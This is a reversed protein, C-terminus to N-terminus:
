WTARAATASPAALSTSWRQRRAASPSREAWSGKQDPSGSPAARRAATLRAAWGAASGRPLSLAPEAVVLRVLPEELWRLIAAVEPMGAAVVPVSCEPRAVSEATRRLDEVGQRPDAGRQLVGAAALRGFRVVHVEWGRQDTPRAAVLEETRALMAHRQSAVVSAALAALRDRVAAAREYQRDAALEAARELLRDAARDFGQHWAQAADAAIRGYAAADIAGACPGPCARLEGASCLSGRPLLPLRDNCTRLPFAAQMALVVLDAERRSPLPGLYRAGRAADAGPRAVISLRPFAEGTLKVWVQREPNRSRRNYPPKHAALLRAERVEAELTTSCGVADVREALAVMEAMRSRQESATFYSRVRKRVNRSTGIYLPKGQGDLFLYVGAGVPLGDALSRKRRQGATVRRSLLALEEVSCVGLDGVRAILGHLVDVTARADALARHCPTTAAGFHRALTSLRHNQVEGRPLVARAIRATDLVTPSPWPLDHLTCAARLFGTDYPANHAVLVSEDCFSLFASVATRVGPARAVAATTIGTLSAIFPPIPVGPNVLTAFEALVEGGRVKVAGIETIGAEAPAGGTTELDVVVFTAGHLPTGLDDLETQVPAVQRATSRSPPSCSLLLDGPRAPFPRHLGDFAPATM